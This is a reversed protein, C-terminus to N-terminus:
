QTPHLSTALSPHPNAKGVRINTNLDAAYDCSQVNTYLDNMVKFADYSTYPCNGAPESSKQITIRVPNMDQRSKTGTLVTLEFCAAAAAKVAAEAQAAKPTNDDGQRQIPAIGSIKSLELEIFFEGRAQLLDRLM